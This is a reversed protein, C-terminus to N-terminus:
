SHRWNRRTRHGERTILYDRYKRMGTEIPEKRWPVGTSQLQRSIETMLTGSYSPSVSM